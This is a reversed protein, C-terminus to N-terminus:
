RDMQLGGVLASSAPARRRAPGLLTGDIRYAAYDDVGEEVLKLVADGIRLEDLPELVTEQVPHGNVLIGNRSGLDRVVYDDGRPSSPAHRRSVASVALVIDASADRGIVTAATGLPWAPPLSAYEGAYLLVLGARGRPRDRRSADFTQMEDTRKDTVALAHG